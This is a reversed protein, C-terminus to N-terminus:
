HLTSSHKPQGSRPMEVGPDLYTTPTIPISLPPSVPTLAIELSYVLFPSLRNGLSTVTLLFTFPPHVLLFLQIYKKEVRTLDRIKEVEKEM